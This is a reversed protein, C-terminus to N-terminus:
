GGKTPNSAPAPAPVPPQAPAASRGAHAAIGPAVGSGGAGSSANAAQPGGRSGHASIGQKVLNAPGNIMASGASVASARARRVQQLEDGFGPVFRYVAASSFISLFLIALGSLVRAFDDNAGAGTAVAGALGLIIVIIPKALDVALMLGAWRRVHKWLQKDVLGAYVATGLLAGVYLMAARILLEIWLVAAALVAVLSVIILILPGGGLSGKELTDAFGGLYTGTDSKTGASIAATLGDTASVVTYLILPTFASAVVTLWLFGIAESFAQALPAGRVARKTVALLWLVLTIVTSGAFVVAYQQLFAANTFDVQTTGDIAGSLKRVVWAAAQACGKALSGLPDTVSGVTDGGVVAAGPPACQGGAGPLPVSQAACTSSPTPSPSPDAFVRQATILATAQLVALAGGLAGARRVFSRTSGDGRM